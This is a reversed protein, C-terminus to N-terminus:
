FFQIGMNKKPIKTFNIGMVFFLKNIEGQFIPASKMITIGNSLSSLIEFFPKLRIYLAHSFFFTLM